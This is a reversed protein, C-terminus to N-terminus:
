AKLWWDFNQYDPFAAEIKAMMGAMAKERRESEVDDSYVGQPLEGRYVANYPDSTFLVEGNATDIFQVTIEYPAPDSAVPQQDKPLYTKKEETIRHPVYHKDRDGYFSSMSIAYDINDERRRTDRLRKEYYAVEQKTLNRTVTKSTFLRDPESPHSIERANDPKITEFSFRRKFWFTASVDYMGGKHFMQGRVRGKDDFLRSCYGEIHKLEWGEPLTVNVFLDDYVEGYVIGFLEGTQRLAAENEATQVYFESFRPIRSAGIARAIARRQSGAAGAVLVEYADAQSM